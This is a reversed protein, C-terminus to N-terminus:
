DRWQAIMGYMMNEPKPPSADCNILSQFKKGFLLPSFWLWGTLFSLIAAIAITLPDFEM